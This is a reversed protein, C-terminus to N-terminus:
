KAPAFGMRHHGMDFETYYRRLFINGLIWIPNEVYNTQFFSICEMENQKNKFIYDKSTLSFIKGGIVFDINPLNSIQDCDVITEDNFAIAGILENIVAIDWSPGILDSTSTDIVAQCGNECVISSGIQVKDITFQWYGKHTVNVYTFEDEYRASNSGGLILEGSTSYLPNRNIYISFVPLEVLGQEIMNIFVPTMGESSIELYGMGLIGDFKSRAFNSGSKTLAEGFTQYQVDFGAFNVVDTSLYGYVSGRTYPINFPINNPTYTSSKKNDYRNHSTKVCAFGIRDHVMDFEIYHRRLFAEGLTWAPDGEYQYDSVFASMCVLEDDHMEKLIYDKSFLRFKKFGAIIFDISPLNDTKNCDVFIGRTFNNHDAGIRNNIITIDTSPGIILSTGTDVIAQCTDECLTKDEMKIKDMTFQWYGKETVDVYTFEGEYLRDDSDGFLLEGDWKANPNQEIYFSFIPQQVLQQNVMNTILPIVGKTSLSPYSLGLIGDYNAYQFSSGYMETAEGFTQKKVDLGAVNVLDTSLHGAVAGNGYRIGFSRGDPRYTSSIMHDYKNHNLCMGHRTKHTCIYSPVWLDSSGTDILVNFPQPPTGITINGYYAIDGDSFLPQRATSRTLRDFNIDIARRKSNVKHLLLRRYSVNLVVLTAIVVLHRFM